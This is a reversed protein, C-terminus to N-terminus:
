ILSGVGRVRQHLLRARSPFSLSLEHALFISASFFAGTNNRYKDYMWEVGERQYDRLYKAVHAPVQVYTCMKHM